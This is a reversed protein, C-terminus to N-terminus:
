GPSSILESRKMANLFPIKFFMQNPTFPRRNRYTGSLGCLIEYLFYRDNIVYQHM